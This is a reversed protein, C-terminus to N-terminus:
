RRPLPGLAMGLILLATGGIALVYCVAMLTVDRPSIRASVKFSRWMERLSMPQADREVDPLLALFASLERPRYSREPLIAMTSGENSVLVYLNRYLRRLGKSKLRVSVVRGVTDLPASVDVRFPQRITLVSGTVTISTRELALIALEAGLLIAVGGVVLLLTRSWGVVLFAVVATIVAILL